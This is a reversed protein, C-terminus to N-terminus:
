RAAQAAMFLSQKMECLWAHQAEGPQGEDKCTEEPWHRAIELTLAKFRWLVENLLPFYETMCEPDESFLRILGHPDRPDFGADFLELRLEALRTKAFAFIKDHRALDAHQDFDGFLKAILSVQEVLREPNDGGASQEVALDDRCINLYGILRDGYRRSNLKLMIELQKWQGVPQAPDFAKAVLEGVALVQGYRSIKAGHLGRPYGSGDTREHHELVADAIHHNFAVFEHLLLYATLPHAYLHRREDVTMVHSPELLAPDIHLLGIDHFLAAAAVWEEEEASMGDRRALYVSVVLLLLSRQYIRRYKERAVTLKFALPAPLQIALVIRRYDDDKGVADAVKGLKDNTRILELLDQLITEHDLMNEVALAMDLPPLMKHHVLRDYLASTIRIGAAVLKIGSHSYIDRSAVIKRTDGLETVARLYHQDPLEHM